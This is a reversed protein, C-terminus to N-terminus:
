RRGYGAAHHLKTFATIIPPTGHAGGWDHDLRRNGGGAAAREVPLVDPPIPERELWRQPLSL